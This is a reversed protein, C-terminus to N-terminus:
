RRRRAALAERAADRAARVPGVALRKGALRELAPVVQPDKRGAVAAVLRRAEAAATSRSEIAELVAPM